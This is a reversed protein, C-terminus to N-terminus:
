FIYKKPEAVNDFTHYNVDIDLSYSSGSTTSPLVIPVSTTIGADVKVASIVKYNTSTCAFFPDWQKDNNMFAIAM